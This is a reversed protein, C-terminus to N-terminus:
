VKINKYLILVKIQSLITDNLNGVKCVLFVSKMIVRGILKRTYREEYIVDTFKLSEIVIIDIKLSIQYVLDIRM